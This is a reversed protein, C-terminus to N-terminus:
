RKYLLETIQLFFVIFFYSELYNNFNKPIQLKM